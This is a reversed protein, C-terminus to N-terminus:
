KSYQVLERISEVVRLECEAHDAKAADLTKNANQRWDGDHKVSKSLAQLGIKSINSLDLSLKESGKLIPAQAVLELYSPHNEIWLLFYDKM